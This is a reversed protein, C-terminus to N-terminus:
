FSEDLRASAPDRQTAARRHHGFVQSVRFHRYSMAPSCSSASSGSPGTTGTSVSTRRWCGSVRTTVGVSIALAAFGAPGATRGAVVVWAIVAFLVPVFLIPLLRFPRTDGILSPGQGRDAVLEAAIL